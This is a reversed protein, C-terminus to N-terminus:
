VVIFENEQEIYRCFVFLGCLMQPPFTEKSDITWGGFIGRHIIQLVNDGDKDLLSYNQSNHMVLLYSTGGISIDAHDVKQARYISWGVVDPNDDEAYDPHAEMLTEGDSNKLIYVRRRVDERQETSTDTIDIDTRYETNEGQLSITKKAGCFDSKIQALKEGSESVSLTGSQMIYLM